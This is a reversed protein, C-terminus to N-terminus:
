GSASCWSRFILMSWLGVFWVLLLTKHIVRKGFELVGKLVLIIYNTYFVCVIGFAVCDFLVFHIGTCHQCLNNVSVGDGNDTQFHCRIRATLSPHCGAFM